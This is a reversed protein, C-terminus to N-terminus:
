TDEGSEGAASRLRHAEHAEPTMRLTPRDELRMDIAGLGRDLVDEGYHWAMVRSLAASSNEEPLMIRLEEDLVLDWRREGVRVFARLRDRIEQGAAMLDLAEPVADPAGKGLMVPLEPYGRRTMARAVLAGDRDVLWLRGDRQRWLAAPVRETVHIKLVGDSGLTVHAAKVPGLAEIRPKLEAVKLVLSSMGPSVAAVERVERTVEPSAGSVEVAAIMFEPRESLRAIVNAKQTAVWAHVSPDAALRLGVGVVLVMPLGCMVLQRVWAKKWARTMRFAWRSPGPSASVGRAQASRLRESNVSRM